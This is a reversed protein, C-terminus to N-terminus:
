RRDIADTSERLHGRHREGGEEVAIPGPASGPVFARAAGRAYVLEGGAEGAYLALGATTASALTAAVMFALPAAPFASAAAAVAVTAGAAWLFAEAREEHVHVPGRGVVREVAHHEHDGAQAAALGGLFVVAQLAVVLWWTRRPLAARRIAALVVAAALPAVLAAGIPIHVLAPHLPLSSM